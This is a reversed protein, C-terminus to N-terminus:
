RGVHQRWSSPRTRADLSCSACSSGGAAVPKSAAHTPAISELAERADCEAADLLQEREDPPIDDLLALDTRASARNGQAQACHAHSEAARFGRMAETGHDIAKALNARRDGATRRTYALALNIHTYAWDAPDREFSRWTLADRLHGIAEEVTEGARRQLEAPDLTAREGFHERNLLSLALNTKGMAWARGDEEKSVISLVERHLKIAREQNAPRDGRERAAVAAGLNM